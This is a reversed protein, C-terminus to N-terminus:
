CLDEDNYDWDPYQVPICLAESIRKHLHTRDDWPKDTVHELSEKLLAQLVAVRAWVDTSM